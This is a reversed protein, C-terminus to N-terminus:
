FDSYILMFFRVIVNLSFCSMEILRGRIPKDLLKDLSVDFSVDFSWMVPGKHPSDLPNGECLVLLISVM